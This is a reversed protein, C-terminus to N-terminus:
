YRLRTQCIAPNIQAMDSSFLGTMAKVKCLAWQIQSKVKLYAYNTSKFSAWIYIIYQFTKKVNNQILICTQLKMSIKHISFLVVECIHHKIDVVHKLSFTPM